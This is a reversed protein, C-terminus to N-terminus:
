SGAGGAACVLVLLVLVLVLVLLVLLVLGDWHRLVRKFSESIVVVSQVGCVDISEITPGVSDTGLGLLLGLGPVQVYEIADRDPGFMVQIRDHLPVGCKRCDWFGVLLDALHTARLWNLQLAIGVFHEAQDVITGGDVSCPNFFM